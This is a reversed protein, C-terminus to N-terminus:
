GRRALGVPGRARRPQAHARDERAASRPRVRQWQTLGLIHHPTIDAAITELKRWIADASARSVMQSVIIGAMGRYGPEQRRLPVPGAKDIVAYLRADLLALDVLGASVDADTRILHLRM